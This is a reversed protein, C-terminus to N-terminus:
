HTEHTQTLLKYLNTVSLKGRLPKGCDDCSGADIDQQRISTGCSPCNGKFIVDWSGLEEDCRRCRANTSDMM